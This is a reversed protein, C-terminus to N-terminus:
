KSFLRILACLGQVFKEQRLKFYASNDSYTNSPDAILDNLRHSLDIFCPNYINALKILGIKQAAILMQKSPLLESMPEGDTALVFCGRHLAELLSLGFGEFRSPYLVINARDYYKTLKFRDDIFETYIEYTLNNITPLKYKEELPLNSKIIIRVPNPPIQLENIAKIFIDFGRRGKFGFNGANILIVLERDRSFKLNNRKVVFDPISWDLKVVPLNLNTLKKYISRTRAISIIFDKERALLNEWPRTDESSPDLVAWELNPVYLIHKVKGRSKILSILDLNLAEFIILVDLSEFWGKASISTANKRGDNNFQLINADLNINNSYTYSFVNGDILMISADIYSDKSLAWCVTEADRHLGKSTDQPSITGVKIIESDFLVHDKHSIKNLRNNCLNINFMISNRLKEPLVTDQHIWHLLSLAQAYQGDRVMSLACSLQTNM